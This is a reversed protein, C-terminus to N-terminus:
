CVTTGGLRFSVAGTATSPLAATYTVSQTYAQPSPLATATFASVNAADSSVAPLGDNSSIRATHPCYREIWVVADGPHHHRAAGHRCRDGVRSRIHVDGDAGHHYM